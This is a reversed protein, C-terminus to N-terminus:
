CAVCECKKDMAEELANAFEDEPMRFFTHLKMEETVPQGGGGGEGRIATRDPAPPLCDKLASEMATVTLTGKGFSELALSYYYTFVYPMLPFSHLLLANMM